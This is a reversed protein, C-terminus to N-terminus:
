IGRKEKTKCAITYFGISKGREKFYVEYGKLRPKKM